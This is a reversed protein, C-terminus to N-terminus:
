SLEKRTENFYVRYAEYTNPITYKDTITMAASLFLVSSLRLHIFGQPDLFSFIRETENLFYENAPRKELYLRNYIENLLQLSKNIQIHQFPVQGINM